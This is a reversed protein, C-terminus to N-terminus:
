RALGLVRVYWLRVGIADGPDLWAFRPGASAAPVLVDPVITLENTGVKVQAEPLRLRYSGMRAPDFGLTMSGVLQHNLLLTVRRQREPVVPDLRIVIDYARKVPLPLRVTAREGLSVRVRVGDPHPESWGAGFFVGDRPGTEVSVDEGRAAAERVVFWPLGAYLTWGSVALFLVGATQLVVALSPRRVRFGTRWLSGVARVSRDMVFLAAVLYLPYAHMTFRWEGGSSVNWTFAYPVLSTILIVLLMRGAPAFSLLALGVVSTWALVTGLHPAYGEFGGFKTVFPQVTLGMFGTDLAAMPHAALKGSLYAATSMPQDAALGEGFRYYSTHYNIAYFPDGTAIACSILFPAVIALCIVASLGAASALRRRQAPPADIALLVVAPLVFSLATIRTLCALGAAGGAILARGFTPRQRLTVFGWATFLVLAMFTDDRWGDAGWTILHYEGAVLIAVAVGAAPSVLASALLYAGAIALTSGAASAVSVAVDADHLLWLFLRTWALFVPERVHPQYFTRMERAFRLYNIPDGGVYPSAIRQWQHASPRLPAAWRPAAHTLARAWGPSEVSGYRQVLADLRVLGGWAVVALALVLPVARRVAPTLVFRM